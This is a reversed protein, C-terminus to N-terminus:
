NPNTLGLFTIDLFNRSNQLQIFGRGSSYKANPTCPIYLFKKMRPPTRNSHHVTSPAVNTSNDFHHCVSSLTNLAKRTQVITNSTINGGATALHAKFERNRHEMELDCPINCGLKGRTNVFQNWKVQHALRPPFLAQM